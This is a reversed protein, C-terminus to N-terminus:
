SSRKAKLAEVDKALASYQGLLDLYKLKLDRLDRKVTEIEGGIDSSASPSDLDELEDCFYVISKNLKESIQRIIEYSARLTGNEYARLTSVAIKERRGTHRNIHTSDIMAAFDQPSFGAAQRAAKLLSAFDPKPRFQAM